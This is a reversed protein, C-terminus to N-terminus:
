LLQLKSETDALLKEIEQKQASLSTLEQRMLKKRRIKSLQYSRLRHFCLAG